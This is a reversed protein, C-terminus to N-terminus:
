VLVYERDQGKPKQFRAWDEMRVKCGYDITCVGCDLWHPCSAEAGRHGPLGLSWSQAHLESWNNWGGGPGRSERGCPNQGRAGQLGKLLLSRGGGKCAHEHAHM